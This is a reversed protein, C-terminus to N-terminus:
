GPARFPDRAGDTRGQLDLVRDRSGPLSAEEQGAVDIEDLGRSVVDADDVELRVYGGLATHFVRVRAICRLDAAVPLQERRGPDGALAPEAHSQEEGAISHNSPQSGKKTRGAVVLPSLISIGYRVSASGSTCPSPLM